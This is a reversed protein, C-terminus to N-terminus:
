AKMVWNEASEEAKTENNFYDADNFDDMADYYLVLFREKGQVLYVDATRTGETFRHLQKLVQYDGNM